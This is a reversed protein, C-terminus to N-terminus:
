TRQSGLFMVLMSMQWIRECDRKIDWLIHFPPHMKPVAGARQSTHRPAHVWEEIATNESHVVSIRVTDVGWHPNRGRQAEDQEEVRSWLHLVVGRGVLGGPQGGELKDAQGM